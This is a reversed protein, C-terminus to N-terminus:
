IKLRCIYQSDENTCYCYYIAEIWNAWITLLENKANKKLMFMNQTAFTNCAIRNLKVKKWKKTKAEFIKYFLNLNNQKQKLVIENM